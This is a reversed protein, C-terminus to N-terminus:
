RAFRPLRAKWREGRPLEARDLRGRRRLALPQLELPQLELPQLLIPASEAEISVPTVADTGAGNTNEAEEERTWFEFVNRMVNDITKPGQDDRPARPKNRSGPKRGRRKIPEDEFVFAPAAPEDLSRLIRGTGGAGAEPYPADEVSPSPISFLAEAAAWRGGEQPKSREPEPPPAPMEMVAPEQATTARGSKKHEVTFPRVPRRM